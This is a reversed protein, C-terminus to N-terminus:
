ASTKLLKAEEAELEARMSDRKAKIQAESLNGVTTRVAFTRYDVLNVTENPDASLYYLEWQDPFSGSPDFYRVLKWDGQCLARVHNPQRVPGPAIPAGQARALAVLDLFNQYQTSSQGPLPETILDDTTFLCGPRPLGDPGVIPGQAQGRIYPSLDTGVFATPTQGVMKQQIAAVEAQTFGALGLLTPALDIHSTPQTIERMVNELPNVLPSSVIMPVHTAEEYATHWKQQMHNHAGGYEGHDATYVVITNDAQGTEDLAALVKRMQLDSLYHLYMYFQGYALTWPVTLNGQSVLPYPIVSQLGPNGALQSKIALGLKYAYDLQCDPKTSLDEDVTPPLGYQAQPFGDPNLAVSPDPQCEDPFVSAPNQVGPPIGNPNPVCAGPPPIPQPLTLPVQPALVGQGNPGYWPVPYTTIDHPNVFSAVAFWPKGADPLCAGQKRIFNEANLSFGPDRLAGTDEFNAGHPEPGSETWCDFGWPSLDWPAQDAGENSVHWKGFYKSDYGATRFWDGITPVGAPDLFMGAAQLQDGTKFIGNTQTVQTLTSYQGTMIATRSPVCAASAIYHNRLVAANKRLRTFGEFFRTFPNNASLTPAFGIIEKMGAIEGQAPGYGPPPIRVEDMLVLLVNPRSSPPPVPPPTPQGSPSVATESGASSSVPTVNNNTASGTCGVLTAPGLIVGAGLAATVASLFDRRQL